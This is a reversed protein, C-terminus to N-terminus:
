INSVAITEDDDINFNMKLDEGFREFDFYEALTEKDMNIVDGHVQQIYSYALNLATNSNNNNLTIIQRNNKQEIAKDLTCNESKMITSCIKIEEDDMGLLQDAIENLDDISLNKNICIGPVDCEFDSIFYESGETSIGIEKLAEQTEEDSAPLEIWKGTSDGENYKRLNAIYIRIMNKERTINGKKSINERFTNNRIQLIKNTNHPINYTYSM